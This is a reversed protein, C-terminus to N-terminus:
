SWGLWRFLFNWINMPKPRAPRVQYNFGSYQCLWSRMVTNEIDLEISGELPWPLVGAYGGALAQTTMNIATRLGNARRRQIDLPVKRQPYGCEGIICPKGGYDERYYPPITGFDNYIHFDCFDVPLDSYKMANEQRMWGISARVGLVKCIEAWHSLSSLLVPWTTVRKDILGDPENMLDIGYLAPHNRVGQVLEYLFNDERLLNLLAPITQPRHHPTWADLLCLYMKVGCTQAKDLIMRLSQFFQPDITAKRNDTFRLGELGEFLWLRVVDLGKATQFFDDVPKPNGPILPKYGTFQNPGLDHDYQGAFWPQNVGVLFKPM